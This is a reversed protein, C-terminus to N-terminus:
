YIKKSTTYTNFVDMECGIFIASDIDIERCVRGSGTKRFLDNAVQFRM